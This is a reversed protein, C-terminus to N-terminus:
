IIRMIKNKIKIKLFLSIVLFNFHFHRLTSKGYYSDHTRSVSLKKNQFKSDFKGIALYLKNITGFEVHGKQRENTEAKKKKVRLDINNKKKKEDCFQWQITSNKQVDFM